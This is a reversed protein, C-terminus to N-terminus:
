WLGFYIDGGEGATHLEGMEEETWNAVNGSGLFQVTRTTAAVIGELVVRRIEVVPAVYRLKGMRM